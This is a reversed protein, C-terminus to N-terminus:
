SQVAESGRLNLVGSWIGESTNPAGFGGGFVSESVVRLLFSCLIYCLMNKWSKGSVM